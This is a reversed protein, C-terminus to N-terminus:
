RQLMNGEYKKNTKADAWEDMKIFNEARLANTLMLGWFLIVHVSHIRPTLFYWLVTCVM